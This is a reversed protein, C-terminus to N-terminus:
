ASAKGGRFASMIMRLAKRIGWWMFVLAISIAMVAALVGVVTTVNVQSTVANIVSQFDDYDVTDAALAPSCSAIAAVLTFACTMIQKKCALLWGKVKGKM